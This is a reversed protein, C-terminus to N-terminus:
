PGGMSAGIGGSRERTRQINRTTQSETNGGGRSLNTSSRGFGTILMSGGAAPNLQRNIEALADAVLGLPGLMKTFGGVQAGFAAAKDILMKWGDIAPGIADLEDSFWDLLDSLPGQLMEGVKTSVNDFKAKLEDQKDNLDQTGDRADLLVPNLKEMIIKFRAAAKESDTLMKPNDKGTDHLAQQTVAAEDVAINLDKLPKTAGGAAKGIADVFFAADRGAPDIDHLKDAIIVVDDSFDTIDKKNLGIATGIGAFAGELSLVDPASLGMKTFDDAMDHLKKANTKGLTFELRSMADGVKDANDLAGGIFEFAKDVAILGGAAKAASGLFGGTAKDADKFGKQLKKADAIIAVRIISDATAM